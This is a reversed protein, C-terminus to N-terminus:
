LIDNHYFEFNPSNDFKPLTYNEQPLICVIKALNFGPPCVIILNISEAFYSRDIAVNQHFCEDIASDALWNNNSLKYILFISAQQLVCTAVASLHSLTTYLWNLLPQGELLRFQIHCHAAQQYRKILVPFNFNCSCTFVMGNAIAPCLYIRNTVGNLGYGPDSNLFNRGGHM